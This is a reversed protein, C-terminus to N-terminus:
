VDLVQQWFEETVDMFSRRALLSGANNVLVDIRNCRSFVDAVLGRAAEALSLDAQLVIVRGGLKEIAEATRRAGAENSNYHIAVQYGLRAFTLATAAGIGSSAGTVLCVRSGNDNPM